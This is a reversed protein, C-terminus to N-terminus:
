TYMIYINAPKSLPPLALERSGMVRELVQELSTGKILTTSGAEDKNGTKEGGGKPAWLMSCHTQTKYALAM